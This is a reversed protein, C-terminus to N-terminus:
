EADSDADDYDSNDDTDDADDLEEDGMDGHFADSVRVQDAHDTQKKGKTQGNRHVDLLSDIASGLWLSAFPVNKFRKVGSRTRHQIDAAGLLLLELLDKTERKLGRAFIPERSTGQLCQHEYVYSEDIEVRHFLWAWVVECIILAFFVYASALFFGSSVKANLSALHAALARLPNWHWEVTSFYAGGLVALVVTVLISSKIVNFNYIITVYCLVLASLWILLLWGSAVAGADALAYLLVSGWIMPHLYVSDAYWIFKIRYVRGSDRMVHGFLYQLFHRNVFRAARLLPWILLWVPQKVLRLLVAELSRRVTNPQSQM